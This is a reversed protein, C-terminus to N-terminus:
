TEESDLLKSDGETEEQRPSQVKTKRVNRMLAAGRKDAACSSEEGTCSGAWFLRLGFCLERERERERGKERETLLPSFSFFFLDKRSDTSTTRHSLCGYVGSFIAGLPFASYTCSTFVGPMYCSEIQQGFSDKTHSQLGEMGFGHM